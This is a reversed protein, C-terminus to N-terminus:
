AKAAVTIKLPEDGVLPYGIATLRRKCASVIDEFAQLRAAYGNALYGNVADLSQLILYSPSTSAFLAM